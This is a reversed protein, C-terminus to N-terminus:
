NAGQKWLWPVQTGQPLCGPVLSWSKSSHRPAPVSLSRSPAAALRPWAWSMYTGAVCHSFFDSANNSLDTTQLRKRKWLLLRIDENVPINSGGQWWVALLLVAWLKRPPVPVPLASKQVYRSTGEIVCKFKVTKEGFSFPKWGVSGM